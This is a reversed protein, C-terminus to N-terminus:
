LASNNFLSPRAKSFFRPIDRFVGPPASLYTSKLVTLLTNAFLKTVFPPSLPLTPLTWHSINPFSLRHLARTTKHKDESPSPRTNCLFPRTLRPRACWKTCCLFLKPSGTTVGTRSSRGEARLSLPPPGLGATKDTFYVFLTQAVFLSPVIAHRVALAHALRM